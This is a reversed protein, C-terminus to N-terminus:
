IYYAPSNFTTTVSFDDNVEAEIHEYIFNWLIKEPNDDLIDAVVVPIESIAYPVDADDESLNVLTIVAENALTDINWEFVDNVLKKVAPRGKIIKDKHEKIHGVIEAVIEKVTDFSHFDLNNKACADYKAFLKGYKESALGIDDLRVGYDAEDM